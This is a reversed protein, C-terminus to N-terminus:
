IEAVVTLTMTTVINSTSSEVTTSIPLTDDSLAGYRNSDVHTPKAGSVAKFLYPKPSINFRASPHNHSFLLHTVCLRNIKILLIISLLM